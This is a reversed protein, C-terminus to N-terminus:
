NIAAQKTEVLSIPIKIDIMVKKKMCFVANKKYWLNRLHFNMSNKNSKDHKMAFKDWLINLSVLIWRFM